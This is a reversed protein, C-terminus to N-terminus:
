KQVILKGLMIQQQSKYEVVIACHWFSCLSKPQFLLLHTPQKRNQMTNEHQQPEMKEIKMLITAHRDGRIHNEDDGGILPIAL